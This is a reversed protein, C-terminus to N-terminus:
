VVQTNHINVDGDSPVRIFERNQIWDKLEAEPDVDEDTNMTSMNPKSNYSSSISELLEERSKVETRLKSKISDLVNPQREEVPKPGALDSIEQRPIGSLHAIDLLADDDTILIAGDDVKKLLSLDTAGTNPAISNDINDPIDEVNLEIFGIASLLDLIKLNEIGKQALTNQKTSGDKHRNIESLVQWPIRIKKGVFDPNNLIFDAISDTGKASRQRYLVNTDLVWEPYERGPRTSYRRRRFHFKLDSLSNIADNIEELKEMMDETDEPGVHSVQASLSDETLQLDIKGSAPTVTLSQDEQDDDKLEVDLHDVENKIDVLSIQLGRDEEYTFEFYEVNILDIETDDTVKLIKSDKEDGFVPGHVVSGTLKSFVYTKESEMYTAERISEKIEEQKSRDPDTESETCFVIQKAESIPEIYPSITNVTIENFDSPMHKSIFSYPTQIEDKYTGAIAGAVHDFLGCGIYVEADAFRSNYHQITHYFQHVESFDELQVKYDNYVNELNNEKRFKEFSKFEEPATSGDIASALYFVARNERQKDFQDISEIVCVFSYEQDGKEFEVEVPDGSSLEGEIEDIDAFLKYPHSYCISTDYM